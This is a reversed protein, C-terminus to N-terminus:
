PNTREIKMNRAFTEHIHDLEARIEPHQIARMMRRDIKAWIRSFFHRSKETRLMHYSAREASCLQSRADRGAETPAMPSASLNLPIRPYLRDLVRDARRRAERNADLSLLLAEPKPPMAPKLGAIQRRIDRMDRLLAAKLDSDQTNSAASKLSALRVGLHYEQDEHM